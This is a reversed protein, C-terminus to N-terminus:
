VRHGISQSGSMFLLLVALCLWDALVKGKSGAAAVDCQVSGQPTRAPL